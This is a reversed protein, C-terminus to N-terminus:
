ENFTGSHTCPYSPLASGAYRGWCITMVYQGANGINVGKKDCGADGGDSFKAIRSFSGPTVYPQYWLEGYVGKGDANTDCIEFVDGDDIFKLYGEPISITKNAMIGVEGPEAAVAPYATAFALMAAAAGVGVPRFAKFTFM